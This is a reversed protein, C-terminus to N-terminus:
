TAQKINIIYENDELLGAMVASIAAITEDSDKGEQVKVQPREPRSPKVVKEEKYLLSKFLQLIISLLFLVLFVVGMGIITVQLSEVLLEM